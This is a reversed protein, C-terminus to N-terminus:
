LGSITRLEIIKSLIKLSILILLYKDQLYEITLQRKVKNQM